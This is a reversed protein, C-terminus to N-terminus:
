RAAIVAWAVLASTRTRPRSTPVRARGSHATAASRVANLCGVDPGGAHVSVGPIGVSASPRRAYGSRELTTVRFTDHRGQPWGSVASAVVDRGQRPSSCRTSLAYAEAVTLSPM